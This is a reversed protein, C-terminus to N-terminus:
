DETISVFPEPFYSNFVSTSHKEIRFSFTHVRFSPMVRSDDRAATPGCSQGSEGRGPKLKDRDDFLDVAHGHRRAQHEVVTVALDATPPPV